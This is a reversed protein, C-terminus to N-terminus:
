FKNTLEIFRDLKEKARGSEISERAINVAEKIDSTVDSALIGFASNLLVMDTYPTKEGLLVSIGVKISEEPSNVRIDELSIRNFGVEEPRFEFTNIQSGKLEAVFTESSLSVEDIGDKGYVVYARKTGLEKLVYALKEVLSESFVGLLQRKADAPNSLPGVLNFITRIGLEKRPGMVNRMAPHYIPAFMFCIGIEELVKAMNKPDIDIKAGLMELFDASGCKSSVSRNGHKAVRIGAGAIVFASVTSVNFTGSADGGTGCTDLLNEKDDVYLKSSKERMVLATGKIEDVTEGKMKLGVLVAGIQADTLEGDMIKKILDHAERYDLNKYDSIKKICHQVFTM